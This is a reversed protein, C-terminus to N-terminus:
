KLHKRDQTFAVRLTHEELTAVVIRNGSFRGLRFATQRVARDERIRHSLAMLKSFGDMARQIATILEARTNLYGVITPPLIGEGPDSRLSPSLNAGELDVVHWTDDIWVIQQGIDKAKLLWNVEEGIDFGDYTAAGDGFLLDCGLQVQNPSATQRKSKLTRRSACEVMTTAVQDRNTMVEKAVEVLAAVQKRLNLCQTQLNEHPTAENTIKANKVATGSAEVFGTVKPDACTHDNALLANAGRLAADVETAAYGVTTASIADNGATKSGFILRYRKWPTTNCIRLVIEDDDLPGYDPYIFQANSQDFQVIYVGETGKLTEPKRCQEWPDPLVPEVKRTRATTDPSSHQEPEVTEASADGEGMPEEIPEEAPVEEAAPAPESAEPLAQGSAPGAFTVSIQIGLLFSIRSLHNM